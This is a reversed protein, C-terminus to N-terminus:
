INKIVKWVKQWLNINNNEYKEVTKNTQELMDELEINM